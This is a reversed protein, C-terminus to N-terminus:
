SVNRGSVTLGLGLAMLAMGLIQSPSMSEEFFWRAALPTLVYNLGYLAYAYSLEVGSLLYIWILTSVTWLAMGLLIPWSSLVSWWATVDNAHHYLSHGGKTAGTKLSVQASVNCVVCASVLLLVKM